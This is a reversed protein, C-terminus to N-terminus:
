NLLDLLDQNAKEAERLQDDLKSNLDHISTASQIKGKVTNIFLAQSKAEETKDNVQNRFSELQMKMFSNERNLCKLSEGQKLVTEEATVEKMIDSCGDAYKSFGQKLITETLAVVRHLLFGHQKVLKLTLERPTCELPNSLDYMPFKESDM